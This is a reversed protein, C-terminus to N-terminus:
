GEFRDGDVVDVAMDRDALAVVLRDLVTHDDLQHLALAEGIRHRFDNGGEGALLGDGGALLHGVLISATAAGTSKRAKKTVCLRFASDCAASSNKRPTPKVRIKPMMRM